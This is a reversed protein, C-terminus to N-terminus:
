VIVMAVKWLHYCSPRSFAYNTISLTMRENFFTYWSCEEIANCKVQCDLETEINPVIDIVNQSLSGFYNSGCTQFCEMNQSVCNECDHAIECSKFLFCIQAVPIASENFYTIYECQDDDICIIQCEELSSIMPIVDILNTSDYECQVGERSCTVPEGPFTWANGSSILLLLFAVKIHFILDGM